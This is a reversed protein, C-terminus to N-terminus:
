CFFDLKVPFQLSKVLCSMGSRLCSRRYTTVPLDRLPQWRWRLEVVSCWCSDNQSRWVCSPLHWEVHDTISDTKLLSRCIFPLWFYDNMPAAFCLVSLVSIKSALMLFNDHLFFTDYHCTSLFFCSTMLAPWWVVPRCVHATYVYWCNLFFWFFILSFSTFHIWRKM